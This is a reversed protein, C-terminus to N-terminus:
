IRMQFSRETTSINRLPKLLTMLMLIIMPQMKKVWWARYTMEDTKTSSGFKSLSDTSPLDAPTLVYPGNLYVCKYGLKMLKKRLASTKAYFLSASQTYGHLFLIKGKYNAPKKTTM